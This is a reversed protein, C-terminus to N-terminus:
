ALLGRLWFLLATLPGPNTGIILVSAGQGAVPVVIGPDPAIHLYQRPDGEDESPGISQVTGGIAPAGGILRVEVRTGVALSSALSVSVPADIHPHGDIAIEALLEGVAVPQGPAALRLVQGDTTAALEVSSGDLGHLRLLPDGKRIPRGATAVITQVIGVRDSSLVTTNYAVRANDIRPYLRPLLWMLLMLPLLVAAAAIILGPRSPRYGARVPEPATVAPQPAVIATVSPRGHASTFGGAAQRSRATLAGTQPGQSAVAPRLGSIDESRPAGSESLRRTGPRPPSSHGPEAIDSVTRGLRRTASEFSALRRELDDLGASTSTPAADDPM